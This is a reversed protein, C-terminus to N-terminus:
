KLYKKRKIKKEIQETCTNDKKRLALKWYRLAEDEKGCMIYIDGAHEIVNGQLEEKGLIEEDTEEPKIVRDIYVKANTYNGRVFLIWAYTDLYVINDPEAKITKYSMQEAEDLREGRLSLYYAYNNLCSINDEMYVLASDYAAFAEETQNKQHYLDGLIAFFESVLQPSAEERKVSLGQRFADAAEELKQQQYLSVGLYYYYVLEEPHYNVGRRCIDEIAAYDERAAYYQLLQSMAMQNDPEVELIRKLTETVKDDGEKKFIQYGAKLTLLQADKQPMALLSDMTQLVQATQVSDQLSQDILNRVVMVRLESSTAPSFLLSDRQQLYKDMQGTKEYYSMMALRLNTNEPAKRRVEDYVLMASDQMGADMYQNGLLVRYNLENPYEKCLSRVEGFAADIQGMGAYLAYKQMTLQVSKGELLEIRELARIAKEPQSKAQYIDALQYLVDSRRTQLAAMKELVPIVEETNRDSLYVTALTELYRTNGSDLECAKRLMAIGLSDQRLDIQMIALQYIAEEADPNIELCHRYLEMASAYDGALRCKEAELCYYDFRTQAQIGM